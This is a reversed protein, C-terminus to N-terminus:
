TTPFGLVPVSPYPMGEQASRIVPANTREGSRLTLSLQTRLAFPCEKDADLVAQTRARFGRRFSPGQGLLRARSAVAASGNRHRFSRGHRFEAGFLGQLF